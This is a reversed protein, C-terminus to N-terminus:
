SRTILGYVKKILFVSTIVLVVAGFVTFLDANVGSIANTIQTQLTTSM